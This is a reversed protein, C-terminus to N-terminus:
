RLQRNFEVLDYFEFFGPEEHAPSKSSYVCDANNDQAAVIFVGPM